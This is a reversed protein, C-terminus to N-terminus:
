LKKFSSHKNRPKESTCLIHKSDATTIQVDHNLTIKTEKIKIKSLGKYPKLLIVCKHHQGCSNCLVETESLLLLLISVKGVDNKLELLNHHKMM